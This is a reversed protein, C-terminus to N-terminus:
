GTGGAAAAFACPCSLSLSLRTSACRPPSVAVDAAFGCCRSSCVRQRPWRVDFEPVVRIGLNGAFAIMDKIDEQTYFGAKIGTLAATLNPYLKSEVSWRCLDSAHLHLVNLKNAAMVTLIDEVTDMPFFRRGTDLMLGRWAYDPADVIRVTGHRVSGAAEDVLQAFSELAYLCGYISTCRASADGSPAVTLNYDYRTRLGLYEDATAVHLRLQRLVPQRPITGAAAFHAASAAVAPAIVAAHRNIAAALRRSASTTSARYDPHLRLAPGHADLHRPPPWVPHDAHAATAAQGATSSVLLFVVTCLATAAMSAHAPM